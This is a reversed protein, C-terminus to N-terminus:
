RTARQKSPDDSPNVYTLKFPGIGTVQVTCESPCMAFHHMGAPMSFFSGVPLAKINPEFTDGMGVGFAGNIVTVNEDRPHFHPMIKYGAPARLQVVYLAGDKDPEGYLVAMRAGKRFVPPAEGWKMEAPSMATHKGTAVAETSRQSHAPSSLWYLAALVLLVAVVIPWIRVM